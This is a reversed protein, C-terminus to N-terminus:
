EIKGECMAREAARRKVLGPLVRGGAHIWRSLEACAGASDGANFKRAITSKCFADVGVNFAFSVFAARQWYALPATICKAIGDAHKVLDTALLEECQAKTYVQGM